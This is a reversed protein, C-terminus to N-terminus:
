IFSYHAHMISVPPVRQHQQQTNRLTQYDADILNITNNINRSNNALTSNNNNSNSNNSYNLITAYNTDLDGGADSGNYTNYTDLLPTPPTEMGLLNQTLNNSNTTNQRMSMSNEALPLQFESPEAFIKMTLEQEEYIKLKRYLSTFVPFIIFIVISIIKWTKM